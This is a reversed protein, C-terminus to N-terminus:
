LYSKIIMRGEEVLAVEPYGIEDDVDEPPMTIVDAIRLQTPKFKWACIMAKEDGFAGAHAFGRLVGLVVINGGAVLIAGPNVDGVVVVHKDSELKMGSRVTGRYFLTEKMGEEDALLSALLQAKDGSLAEPSIEEASSDEKDAPIEEMTGPVYHIKCSQKPKDKFSEYSIIELKMEAAFESLLRREYSDLKIGNIGAIKGGEFIQPSAHILEKFSTFFENFSSLDKVNLVFGDKAGRLKIVNNM